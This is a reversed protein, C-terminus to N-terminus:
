AGALGMEPAATTLKLVQVLAPTTPSLWLDVDIAGRACHMRWGGRLAGAPRLPDAHRCPGHTARLQSLDQRRLEASRDLFLNDAALATAAEADWSQYLRLVAERAAVLAPAPEAARPVLGGSALLAQFAKDVAQQVPAYTLNAFGIVGVGHDPLWQVHSGFGPLGGSHAVIRGFRPDESATLGFGYGALAQSGGLKAPRLRSAQQMERASSRRLPGPDPDDRAPWAALHLALYRSFDRITTWLGGMPAFAGGPLPSEEQWEQDVLRYGHARREQPVDAVEWVTDPMGLPRFLRATAFEEAPVGAVTALVRGLIAYGLNSYEFSTAPPHSFPVGRRLLRSFADAPMALQRDAWPDDEVLGASMTLLQRLTLPASDSTPLQGALEPIYADVRDDLGLKGEDRLMLLCAATISKTMSAIRFVTDPGVGAGRGPIAVGIGGVHLLQGDVVVGYAVGPCRVRGQFEAFAGDIAPYAGALLLRRRPDAFNLVGLEATPAAPGKPTPEPKSM